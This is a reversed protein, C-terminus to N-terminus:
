RQLMTQLGNLTFPPNKLHVVAHCNPCLPILDTIPDIIRPGTDALREIHHVHILLEAISGYRDALKIRCGQCQYGFHELCRTRLIKSREYRSSLVTRIKGDVIIVDNLAPSPTKLRSKKGAVPLSYTLLREALVSASAGVPIHILTPFEEAWKSGMKERLQFRASDSLQPIWEPEDGRLYVTALLSDQKHYLHAFRNSGKVAFACTSTTVRFADPMSTQLAELLSDCFERSDGSCNEHTTAM